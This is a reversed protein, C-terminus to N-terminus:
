AASVFRGVDQTMTEGFGPVVNSCWSRRSLAIEATPLLYPENERLPGYSVLLDLRYFWRDSGSGAETMEKVRTKISWPGRPREEPFRAPIRRM